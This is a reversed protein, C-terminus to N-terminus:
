IRQIMSNLNHITFTGVTAVPTGGAHLLALQPMRPLHGVNGLSLVDNDTIADVAARTDLDECSIAFVQGSQTIKMSKAHRQVRRSGAQSDVFLLHGLTMQVHRDKGVREKKRSAQRREYKKQM